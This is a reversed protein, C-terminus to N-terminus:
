GRFQACADAYHGEVQEIRAASSQLGATSDTESSIAADGQATIRDGITRAAIRVESPHLAQAVGATVCECFSTSEYRDCAARYARRAEGVEQDSAISRADQPAADVPETMAPDATMTQQTTLSPQYQGDPGLPKVQALAISGLSVAGVLVAAAFVKRM